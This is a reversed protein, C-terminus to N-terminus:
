HAKTLVERWVARGSALQTRERKRACAPKTHAIRRHTTRPACLTDDFWCQRPQRPTDQAAVAVLMSDCVSIELGLIEQQVFVRVDLEDVKPQDGFWVREVSVEQRRAAPRSRLHM